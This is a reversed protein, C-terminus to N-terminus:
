PKKQYYGYNIGVTALIYKQTKGINNWNQIAFHMLFSSM